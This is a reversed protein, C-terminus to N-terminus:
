PAEVPARMAEYCASLAQLAYATVLIHDGEFYQTNQNVWSGDDSQLGILQKALDQAWDHRVGDPTTVHTEGYAALAKAMIRYYYYLGVDKMNVNEHLDYHRCIWDFASQVRPDSKDVHAYLFSVLGAYTMTGYSAYRKQGTRDTLEGAPSEAPRYVFGGRNEPSNDAWPQSNSEPRNQTNEIFALAAQYAPDDKPIGSKNLAELVNMTNNLDPRSGDNYGFGGGNPDEGAGQNQTRKLYEVARRIAEEYAPDGAQKLALIALSTSYNSFMTTPMAYVVGNKKQAALLAAVAKQLFPHDQIRYRDTSTLFASIVLATFSAKPALGGRIFHGDEEQHAKLYALGKRVSDVVQEQLAQDATGAGAPQPQEQMVALEKRIDELSRTTHRPWQWAVYLGLLLVVGLLLLVAFGLWRWRTRIAV